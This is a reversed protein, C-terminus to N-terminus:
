AVHLASHGDACARFRPYICQMYRDTKTRLVSVMLLYVSLLFVLVLQNVLESVVNAWTQLEEVTWKGSGQSRLVKVGSANLADYADDVAVDISNVFDEDELLLGVESALVM